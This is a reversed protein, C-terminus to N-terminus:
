LVLIPLIFSFIFYGIFYSLLVLYRFDTHKYSRKFEFYPYFRELAQISTIIEASVKKQFKYYVIHHVRYPLDLRFPIKISENPSSFSLKMEWHPSFRVRRKSLTASKFDKLYVSKEKRLFPKFLPITKYTAIDIRKDELHMITLNSRLPFTLLFLLSIFFVLILKIPTIEELISVVLAYIDFIMMILILFRIGLDSNEHGNWFALDIGTKDWDSEKYYERSRFSM